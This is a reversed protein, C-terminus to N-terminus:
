LHNFEPDHVKEDVESREQTAKKNLECLGKGIGSLSCTFEGDTQIRKYVHNMLYLNKERRFRAQKSSVTRSQLETSYVASEPVKLLLILSCIQVLVTRTMELSRNSIACCRLM